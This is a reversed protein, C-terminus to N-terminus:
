LTGHLHRADNNCHLFYILKAFYLKVEVFMVIWNKNAGNVWFHLSFLNLSVRILMGFPLLMVKIWCFISCVNEIMLFIDFNTLRRLYRTSFILIAHSNLLFNEKGKGLSEIFKENGNMQWSFNVDVKKWEM